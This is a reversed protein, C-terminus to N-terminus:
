FIQSVIKTNQNRVSFWCVYTSLNALNYHNGKNLNYLKWVLIQALVQYAHNELTESSCPMWLHISCKQKQNPLLLNMFAFFNNEWLNFWDIFLSEFLVREKFFDKTLNNRSFEFYIKYGGWYSSILRIGILFKQVKFPLRNYLFFLHTYFVILVLIVLGNWFISVFTLLFKM